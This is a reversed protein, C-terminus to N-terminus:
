YCESILLTKDNRKCWTLTRNDTYLPAHHRLPWTYFPRIKMEASKLSYNYKRWTFWIVTKGSMSNQGYLYVGTLQCRHCREGRYWWAGLWHHACKYTTDQDVTSFPAGIHYALSDDACFLSVNSTCDSVTYGPTTPSPATPCAGASFLWSKRMDIKALECRRSKHWTTGLSESM